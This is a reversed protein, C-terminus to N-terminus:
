RCRCAPLTFAAAVRGASVEDQDIVASRGALLAVELARQLAAHDVAGAQDEVDEGLARRLWSPL